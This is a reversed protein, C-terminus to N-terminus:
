KHRGNERVSYTRPRMLTSSHTSDLMLQTGPNSSNPTCDLRAPHCHALSLQHIAPDIKMESIIHLRTSESIAIVTDDRTLHFTSAPIIMMPIKMAPEPKPAAM